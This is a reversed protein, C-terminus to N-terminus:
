AISTVDFTYRLILQVGNFTPVVARLIAGAMDYAVGGYTVALDGQQGLLAYAAKWAAGAGAYDGNGNYSADDTFVFQGSINGRPLNTKNAAGYGEVSQVVSQMPWSEIHGRHAVPAATEDALLVAKQAGTPTFNVTFFGM